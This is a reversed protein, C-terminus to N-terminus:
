PANRAYRLYISARVFPGHLLCYCFGYRYCLFGLLKPFPPDRRDGIMWAENSDRHAIQRENTQQRLRM